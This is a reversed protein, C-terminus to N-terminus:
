LCCECLLAHQRSQKHRLTSSKAWLLINKEKWTIYQLKIGRKTSCSFVCLLLSDRWVNPLSKKFYARYQKKCKCVIYGCFFDHLLVLLSLHHFFTCSINDSANLDMKIKTFSHIPRIHKCSFEAM